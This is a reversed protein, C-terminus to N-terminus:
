SSDNVREAHIDFKTSRDHFAYDQWFLEGIKQITALMAQKVTDTQM